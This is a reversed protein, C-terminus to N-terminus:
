ASADDSSKQPIVTVVLDTEIQPTLALTIQYSGLHNIKQPLKLNSAPLSLGAQRNIQSIIDRATISGYIADGDKVRATLTLETGALKAALQQSAILEQEVKKQQARSQAIAQKTVAADALAALGHPFLYNRAYGETVAVLSGAPGLESLNALLIVKITKSM